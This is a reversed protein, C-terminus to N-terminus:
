LKTEKNDNTKNISYSMVFKHAKHSLPFYVLIIFGLFFLSSLLTSAFMAGVTTIFLFDFLSFSHEFFISLFIEKTYSLIKLIRENM